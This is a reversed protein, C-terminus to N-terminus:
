VYGPHDVRWADRRGVVGGGAADHRRDGASLRRRRRPISVRPIGTKGAKRATEPPQGFTELGTRYYPEDEPKGSRDFARWQELEAAAGCVLAAGRAEIGSLDAIFLRKGAEGHHRRPHYPRDDGVAPHIRPPADGGSHRHRGRRHRRSRRRDRAQAPQPAPRGHVHLPRGIRRPLSLCIPHRPEGETSVWRKLTAFKLAAAGGASQRLGLLQRAEGTLGPELLAEAVTTKQLNSMRCGHEALWKLIRQTQAPKTVVGGTLKAIQAYLDLKAEGGM